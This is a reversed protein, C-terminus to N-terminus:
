GEGEADRDPTATHRGEAQVDNDIVKDETFYVYGLVTLDFSGAIHIINREQVVPSGLSEVVSAELAKRLKRPDFRPPRLKVLTQTLSDLAQERQPRNKAHRAVDALIMLRTLQADTKTEM